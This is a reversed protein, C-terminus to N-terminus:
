GPFVGMPSYIHREANRAIRANVDAVQVANLTIVKPPPNEFVGYLAFKRNLPFFLEADRQGYGVAGNRPANLVVPHDSCIFDQDCPAILLSWIRETLLKLVHDIASFEMRVNVGPPIVWEYSEEEVSRKYEEFSANSVDFPEIFGAQIASRIQAEWIKEDSCIMSEIIRITKLRALNFAKRLQPNRVALLGILTLIYEFDQGSHFSGTVSVNRIAQAARNEFASLNQEIADPAKGEIDVRNFDREAAVNKPSTRFVRESSVDLVFFKGNKKGSDTFGALYTKPLYHHIRAEPKM